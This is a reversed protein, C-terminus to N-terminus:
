DVSGFAAQCADGPPNGNISRCRSSRRRRIPPAAQFLTMGHGFRTITSLGARRNWMRGSRSIPCASARHYTSAKHHLAARRWRNASKCSPWSSKRQAKPGTPMPFTWCDAAIAPADRKAVAWASPPNMILASMGSILARNNSADDYSVTDPPLFKVLKQAYELFQRVTDSNVTIDGKANMLDAGFASFM